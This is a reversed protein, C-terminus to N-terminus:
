AAPAATSKRGYLGAVVVGLIIYQILGYIFWQMALAYPMKYAAYSDYAMPLAVLLGVYIGYRVGEAIGKGEYGKSFILTFFFSAVAATMFHVWMKGEEQPRMMSAMPESTFMSGLLPDYIVYNTLVMVVYVVIFAIWFKQNM